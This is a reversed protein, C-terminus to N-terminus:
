KPHALLVVGLESELSQVSEVQNDDLDALESVYELAVLQVGLESELEKVEELQAKSLDAIKM